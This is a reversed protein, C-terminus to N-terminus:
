QAFKLLAAAEPYLITSFSFLQVVSLLAFLASFCFSCLGGVALEDGGFSWDTSRNKYFRGIIFFVASILVFSVLTMWWDLVVKNVAQSAATDILQLLSLM